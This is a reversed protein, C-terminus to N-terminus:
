QYVRGSKSRDMARYVECMQVAADSYRGIGLAFVASFQTQRTNYFFYNAQGCLGPAPLAKKNCV